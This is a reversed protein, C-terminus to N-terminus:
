KKKLIPFQIMKQNKQKRKKVQIEVKIEWVIQPSQMAFINHSLRTDFNLLDHFLLMTPKLFDCDM